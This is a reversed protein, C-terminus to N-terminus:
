MSRCGVKGELQNRRVKRAPGVKGVCSLGCELWTGNRSDEGYCSLPLHKTIRRYLATDGLLLPYAEPSSPITRVSSHVGKHTDGSQIIYLMILWRVSLFIKCAWRMALPHAM